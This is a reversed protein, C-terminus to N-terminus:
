PFLLPLVNKYRSLRTFSMAIKESDSGFSLSKAIFHLFFFFILSRRLSEPHIPQLNKKKLFLKFQIRPKRFAVPKVIPFETKFNFLMSANSVANM